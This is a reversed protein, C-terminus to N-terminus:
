WTGQCSAGLSSGHLCRGLLPRMFHLFRRRNEEDNWWRNIGSPHPIVACEHGIPHMVWELYPRRVGCATAVAHGAFLLRVDNENALSHLLDCASRRAKHTPFADGKGKGTGPYTALLNVCTLTNLLSERDCLGMHRALRDGSLGDFARSGSTRSPAQGIVLIRM